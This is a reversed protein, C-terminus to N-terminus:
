RSASPPQTDFNSSRLSMLATDVQVLPEHTIEAPAVQTAKNAM